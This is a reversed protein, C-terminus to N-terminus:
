MRLIVPNRELSQLFANLQEKMCHPTSSCAHVGVKERVAQPLLFFSQVITNARLLSDIKLSLPSNPCPTMGLGICLGRLSM